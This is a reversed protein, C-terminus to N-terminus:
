AQATSRPAIAWGRKVSYVLRDGQQLNFESAKQGPIRIQCFGGARSRVQAHMLKGQAWQADVVFNGRAVLGQFSGDPWAEPLAPLLDIVGAHSQLLMEAVGATGGFNGDIQFPPHTDWLNPLTGFRLLDGYLKHARNGEGTRAWLNIRHAMAWGTSKDGRRNLTVKAAAMWEPTERTICSGPYLGVLHSIHRHHSEGIEGYKREERFEKVQGSSGIQVPDLRPLQERLTQILPPILGLECAAAITNKHNEWVMQQDFACGVTRYYDNNKRQEPSASAAVLLHGNQEELTKSLFSAMGYLIPYVQELVRRDMTFAYADWLLMSTFAGTGPGSHKSAGEITYLWAGTGITWGNLGPAELRSPHLHGIYEDAKREALPLYARNYEAYATFMEALNTSFAPWYNMQVNINHWYGCSWPPNDHCNWTGQLNAPPTGARSSAILLYRGYQFYLEELYRAQVDQKPPLHLRSRLRQEKAYRRYRQLLLDTPLQSEGGFDVAARNFYQTYDTLHRRYLADYPKECAAKLIATIQEHPHPYPALKKARDEELFVRSEMQYNTGLAILLLASDAGEVRLLAQEGNADTQVSLAGGQPLVRFQGEFLINYYHMRGSLLLTDGHATISGSKGAQDGEKLSYDRVFPITPRLTFSLAAPKSATLYVVMVRDPYSTFYTREYHGGACDYKVYAFAENLLLGREYNEVTTHGFDLYTESFNNLGGIGYPNSLSKETLQIRETDTRGFVNAGFYGNGLPLSWKEWAEAESMRDALAPSQYWLRYPKM